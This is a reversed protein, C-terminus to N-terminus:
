RLQERLIPLLLEAILQHGKDNPHMGDLLLADPGRATFAAHIDLLPVALEAALRRVVDNYRALVPADFGDVAEPRYPPKGYLELLKDTWRTPNTTMLVPKAQQTRLTAVIERLNAEYEAVSVRSATAPPNRWVDVAADNLGFQIVVVRPRHALVDRALRERANTTTNSGVGANHVSLAPASGQLAEQVREPYVKDVQGPRLATTSDGFMVIGGPTPPPPVPVVHVPLEGRGLDALSIKMRLLGQMTTIWLEGPRREYLYPYSVRGKAGYNGAIAQPPSWTTGEDTSLALFLEERSSSSQPQHRPPYNWLLAIRGDALRAMQPCCTVSKIQSPKLDEWLLGGNRSVAEYLWGTETRLLQYLSGDQREVVTGEISGAHDHRGQGIDLVNSRQWTVGKDDSVFVVTAHRWAPIIEQGVLVLRGSRTEILSHICGCWPRNLLIPDEWTKGEDLSRNVYIPLVFAQWDVNKGGWNWGPPSAQESLNMWAAIVLGDRTRLLARENSIRYKQPERFIPTATWTQGEDRSHLAQQADVCLVGGAGTTVFPGQHTFPLRAAQPHLVLTPEPATAPAAAMAAPLLAVALAVFPHSGTSSMM